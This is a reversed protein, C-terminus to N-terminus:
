AVLTVTVNPRANKLALWEASTSGDNAGEATEFAKDVAEKSFPMTFTATTSRANMISEISAKTLKKCDKFDIDSVIVGEVVINELLTCGKFTNSYKTNAESVIFKDITVIMSNSFTDQLNGKANRADIVGVRKISSYTFTQNLTACASTDFPVGLKSLHEVLDINLRSSNWFMSQARRCRIAYEPKFTEADWRVGAFAGDYSILAGNGQYDGWFAEREAKKGLEYVQPIKEVLEYCIEKIENNM